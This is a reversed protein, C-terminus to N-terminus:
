LSIGIVVIETVSAVVTGGDVVLVLRIGVAIADAVNTLFGIVIDVVVAHCIALVIAGVVLIGVLLVAVPVAIPIVAGCCKKHKKGSGCPCPDNRGVPMHSSTM